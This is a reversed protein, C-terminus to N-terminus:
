ILIAGRYKWDYGIKGDPFFIIQRMEELSKNTTICNAWCLNQGNIDYVTAGHPLELVADGNTHVYQAMADLPIGPVTHVRVWDAIKVDETHDPAAIPRVTLQEVKNDRCFDLLKKLEDVTDVYGKVLMCSLRVSFGFQHLKTILKVLDMPDGKRHPQYIEANRENDYHVMSLCITTLGKEYWEVMFYDLMDKTAMRIGNTQLEIFPFKEGSERIHQLYASILDPYLTPEGKGTLLITLVGAKSACQCAIKFNRWNILNADAPLVGADPTMGAICFPCCANCAQTGVVISMTQVKM